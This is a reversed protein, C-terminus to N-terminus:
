EMSPIGGGEQVTWYRAESKVAAVVELLFLFIEQFELELVHGGEKAPRVGVGISGIPLIGKLSM